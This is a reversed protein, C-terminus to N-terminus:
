CSKSFFQNIKCLNLNKLGMTDNFDLLVVLAERLIRSNWLNRSENICSQIMDPTEDYSTTSEPESISNSSNEDFSYDPESFDSLNSTQENYSYEESNSNNPNILLGLAGGFTGAPCIYKCFAPLPVNRLM